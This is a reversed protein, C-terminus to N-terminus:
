RINHCDYSGSIKIQSRSSRMVEVNLTAEGKKNQYAMGYDGQFKTAAVTWHMKVNNSDGKQQLFVVKQHRTKMGDVTAWGGDATQGALHFPGCQVDAFAFLPLSFTIAIATRSILKM